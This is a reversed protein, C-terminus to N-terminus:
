GHQADSNLVGLVGESDCATGAGEAELAGDTNDVIEGTLAVNEGFALEADILLDAAELCADEGESVVVTELLVEDATKGIRPMAAGARAEEIDTLLSEHM